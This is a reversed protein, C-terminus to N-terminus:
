PHSRNLARQGAARMAASNAARGLARALRAPSGCRPGHCYWARTNLLTLKTEKCSPCRTVDGVHYLAARLSLPLPRSQPQQGRTITDIEIPRSASV